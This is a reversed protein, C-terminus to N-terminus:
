STLKISVPVPRQITHGVPSTGVVTDHLAALQDPDADSDLDVTVRIGEYGANGDADLGLFTKLNVDGELDITLKDITIGAATANAAYGVHHEPQRACDPHGTPHSRTSPGVAQNDVHPPLGLRLCQRRSPRGGSRYTPDPPRRTRVDLGFELRSIGLPVVSGVMVVLDGSM